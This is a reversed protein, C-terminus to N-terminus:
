KIFSLDSLRKIYRKGEDNVLMRSVGGALGSLECTNLNEVSMGLFMANFLSLLGGGLSYLLSRSM